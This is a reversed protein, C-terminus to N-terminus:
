SAAIAAPLGAFARLVQQQAASIYHKGFIFLISGSSFIFVKDNEGHIEVEAWLVRWSQLASAIVFGQENVDARYRKGAYGKRRYARRLYGASFRSGRAFVFCVASGALLLARAGLRHEILSGALLLIGFAFWAFASGTNGVGASLDRYLLQAAVFDDSSIEYEFQM